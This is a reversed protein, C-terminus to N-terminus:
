IKEKKIPSLYGKAASCRLKLLSKNHNTTFQFFGIGTNDGTNFDNTKQIGCEEAANQFEDLMKLNIRKNSVMIPGSDNHFESKGLENNESKLFYPLVDNWGWGNNGMQRWNDYDNSQGRIWLLGNISSSGGLTKGRPYRISRNNMSEDKETHFCWDVKPNHMTKYYGVPIHIWPYNDKGGAELLLVKCKDDATLRNALVCGASGAGIIIFDFNEM